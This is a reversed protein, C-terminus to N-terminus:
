SCCWMAQPTVEIRDQDAKLDIAKLALAGPAQWVLAAVALMVLALARAAADALQRRPEARASTHSRRTM